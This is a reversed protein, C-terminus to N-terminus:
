VHARGIEPLEQLLRGLDADQEVESAVRAATTDSHAYAQTIRPGLVAAELAQPRPSLGQSGAWRMVESWAGADPQGAFYLACDSGECELLLQHSRAFTYPLPHRASM